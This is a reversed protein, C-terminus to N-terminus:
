RIYSNEYTVSQEMVPKFYTFAIKVLVLAQLGVLIGVLIMEWPQWPEGEDMAGSVIVMNILGIVQEFVNWLPFYESALHGKQLKEPKGNWFNTCINVSLLYMILVLLSLFYELGQVIKCLFLIGALVAFALVPISIRLFFATKFYRIRVEKSMPCLFLTKSMRNPYLRALFTGAVLPVMACYYAIVAKISTNHDLIFLMPFVLVYVYSWWWNEAKKLEKFASRFNYRYDKWVIQLM